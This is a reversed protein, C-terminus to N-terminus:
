PSRWEAETPGAVLADAVALFDPRDGRGGTSKWASTPWPPRRVSRPRAPTGSTARGGAREADAWPVEVRILVWRLGGVDPDEHLDASLRHADPFVQATVEALASLSGEVQRDQIFRQAAPTITLPPSTEVM